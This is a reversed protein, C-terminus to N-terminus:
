RAVAEQQRAIRWAARRRTRIVLARMRLLQQEGTRPRARPLDPFIQFLDDQHRGASAKASLRRRMGRTYARGMLRRAEATTRATAADTVAADFGSSIYKM